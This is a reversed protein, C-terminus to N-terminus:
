VVNMARTEIDTTDYRDIYMNPHPVCGQWGSSLLPVCGQGRNRLKTRTVRLHGSSDISSQICSTTSEKPSVVEDLPSAVLENTETEESKQSLYAASPM